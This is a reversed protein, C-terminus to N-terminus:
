RLYAVILWLELYARRRTAATAHTAAVIARARARGVAAVWRDFLVGLMAGDKWASLKRRVPEYTEWVANVHITWRELAAALTRADAAAAVARWM